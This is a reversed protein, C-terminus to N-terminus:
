SNKLDFSRIISYAPGSVGLKSEMLDITNVEFSYNDFAWNKLDIQRPEKIRCITIHPTWFRHENPFNNQELSKTLKKQLNQLINKKEIAKLYIVNPNKMNPFASFGNTQLETAKYEGAEANIISQLQDIRSDEINGLFAVTIHMIKPDVWKVQPFKKYDEKIPKLFDAIKQKLEDPLNIAIFLRKTM